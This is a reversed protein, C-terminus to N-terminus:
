DIMPISSRVPHVASEVALISYAYEWQQEMADWDTVVGDVIPSRIETNMPARNISESGIYMRQNSSPDSSNEGIGM